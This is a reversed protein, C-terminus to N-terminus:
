LGTLNGPARRALTFKGYGSETVCPTTIAEDSGPVSVSGLVSGLPLGSSVEHWM